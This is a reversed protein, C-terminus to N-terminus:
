RERGGGADHGLNGKIQKPPCCVWNRQGTRHWKNQQRAQATKGGGSRSRRGNPRPFESLQWCLHIHTPLTTHDGSGCARAGGQCQAPTCAPEPGPGPPCNYAATTAHTATTNCPAGAKRPGGCSSGIGGWGGAEMLVM